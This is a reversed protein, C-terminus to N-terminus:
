AKESVTFSFSTVRDVPRAISFDGEIWGEICPRFSIEAGEELEVRLLKQLAIEAEGAANAIVQSVVQDLYRQGTADFYNLWQGERIAYYPTLGALPITRGGEVDEAVTPLGPAGVNFGPQHISIVAGFRRAQQLRASWRRGDPEVYMPPTSVQAAYRDGLRELRDTSGGLASPLFGGFELPTIEDDRIRLETLDISSM